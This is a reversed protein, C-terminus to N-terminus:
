FQLGYQAKNSSKISDEGIVIRLDGEGDDNFLTAAATGQGGSSHLNQVGVEGGILDAGGDDAFM